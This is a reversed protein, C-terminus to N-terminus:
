VEAFVKWAGPSRSNSSLRGERCAFGRQWQQLLGGPELQHSIINKIIMTLLIIMVILMWCWYHPLTRTGAVITTQGIGIATWSIDLLFFYDNQSLIILASLIIIVMLVAWWRIMNTWIMMISLLILVTWWLWRSSWIWGRCSTRWCWRLRWQLM